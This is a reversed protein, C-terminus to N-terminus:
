SVFNTRSYVEKRAVEPPGRGGGLDRETQERDSGVPLGRTPTASRVVIPIRRSQLM